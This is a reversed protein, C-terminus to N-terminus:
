QLCDRQVHVWGVLFQLNFTQKHIAHLHCRGNTVYNTPTFQETFVHDTLVLYFCTMHPQSKHLQSSSSHRIVGSFQLQNFLVLLTFTWTISNHASKNFIHNLQVQSNLLQYYIRAAIFTKKIQQLLIEVKLVNSIRRQIAWVWLWRTIFFPKTTQTFTAPLESKPQCLPRDHM